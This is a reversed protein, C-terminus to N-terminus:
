KLADEKLQRCTEMSDATLNLSKRVGDLIEGTTLMRRGRVESM